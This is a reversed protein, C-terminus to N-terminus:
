NLKIPKNQGEGMWLEENGLNGNKSQYNYVIVM